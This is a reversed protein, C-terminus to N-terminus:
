TPFSHGCQRCVTPKRATWFVALGFPFLFVAILWKYFAWGFRPTQAGCQPCTVKAQPLPKGHSHVPM